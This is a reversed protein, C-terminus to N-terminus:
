YWDLQARGWSAEWSNTFALTLVGSNDWLPEWSSTVFGCFSEMADNWLMLSFLWAWSVIQSRAQIHGESKRRVRQEWPTQGATLPSKHRERSCALCLSSSLDPSTFPITHWTALPEYLLCPSLRATAHLLCSLHFAFLLLQKPKVPDTTTSQHQLLFKIDPRIHGYVSLPM